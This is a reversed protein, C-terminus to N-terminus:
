RVVYGLLAGAEDQYAWRHSIPYRVWGSDAHVSVEPPLPPADAPVPSVMRVYAVRGKQKRPPEPPPTNTGVDRAIEKAADIQSVSNLYAYLSILDGGKAAGSEDAFDSWKGTVLNIRFSGPSKDPRRPNLAIWESSEQRGGPLWRAVLSSSQGLARSSIDSYDIKQM